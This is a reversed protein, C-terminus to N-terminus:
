VLAPLEIGGVIEWRSIPLACTQTFDRFSQSQEVKRIMFFPNLIIGWRVGKEHIVSSLHLRPFEELIQQMIKLAGLHLHCLRKHWLQDIDRSEVKEEKTSLAVCDEVDLKYLNKVQVGIKKVHGTPKHHLFAKGESFIADYGHDELMAVSVLSKELGPVYMVYKLTLPTGSDRQFKVIGIDTASYREDYGMKIHM